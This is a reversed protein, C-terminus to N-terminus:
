LSTRGLIRFYVVGNERAPTGTSASGPSHTPPARPLPTCSAARGPSSPLSSPNAVRRPLANAHRRGDLDPMRGAPIEVTATSLVCAGTGSGSSNLFEVATLSSYRAHSLQGLGVLTRCKRRGCAAGGGTNISQSVKTNGFVTKMPPSLTYEPTM